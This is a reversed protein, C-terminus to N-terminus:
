LWHNKFKNFTSFGMFEIRAIASGKM